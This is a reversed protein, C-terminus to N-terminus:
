FANWLVMTVAPTAPRTVLPLRNMFIAKGKLRFTERGISHVLPHCDRRLEVDEAEFREILQLLEMTSHSALAQLFLQDLCEAGAAANMCSKVAQLSPLGSPSSPAASPKVEQAFSSPEVASVFYVALLINLAIARTRKRV